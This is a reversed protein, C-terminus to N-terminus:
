VSGDYSFTPAIGTVKLKRKRKLSIRYVIFSSQANKVSDFSTDQLIIEFIIVDSNVHFTFIFILLKCKKFLQKRRPSKNLVIQYVM